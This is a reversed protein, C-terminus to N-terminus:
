ILSEIILDQSSLKVLSQDNTIFAEAGCYQATALHVADALQLSKHNRRFQAALVLIAREVPYMNMSLSDIFDLVKQQDQPDSLSHDSLIEALVLESALLNDTHRLIDASPQCLDPHDNLVYIFLNTDVAIM